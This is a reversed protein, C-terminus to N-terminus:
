ATFNQLFANIHDIMQTILEDLAKESLWACHPTILVNPLHMIAHLPHDEPMPELSIVDLAVGKIKKDEIAKILDRENMIGGRATNVVIANKKMLTFEKQAILNATQANLPCHISLVDARRLGEEFPVKRSNQDDNRVNKRAIFYAKMGFAKGLEAVKKGIAGSGIIGLHLDKLDVIAHQGYFFYPSKGWAGALVDRHYHLMNRQLALIMMLTHEAVTQQAYGIINKVAIGKEQCYRVDVNSVGTASVVIMQLHPCLILTQRALDIKNVVVVTANKMREVVKDAPTNAYIKLICNRAICGSPVHRPLSDIELFVVVPLSM